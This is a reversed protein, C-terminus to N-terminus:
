RIVTDCGVVVNVKGSVTGKFTACTSPCAIIRTPSGQNDYHWGGQAPDCRSADGVNAVTVKASDAGTFEINVKGRDVNGAPIAYDCPLAAGRIQNMAQSLAQANTPDVIVAQNTGGAAAIQNLGNLAVGLGLVYTPISPSGSVGEAAVASVNELTSNCEQPIGDTVLFVVVKRDPHQTKWARAHQIAGRLAPETATGEFPLPFSAQLAAANAPLPAIPVKPTAYFNVDCNEGFFQIGVGIGSSLPDNLFKLFVDVVGIWWPIMSGSDDFMVYMDLQAPQADYSDGGCTKGGGGGGGPIPPLGGNGPGPDILGGSGPDVILGGSGGIGGQPEGASASCGAHAALLPVLLAGSIFSRRYSM